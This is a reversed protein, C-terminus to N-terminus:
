TLGCRSMLLRGDIHAALGFKTYLGRAAVNAVGVEVQISKCERERCEDFLEGLLAQAVGRRRFAPQVFLDDVYGGLGGHEMTYRVTLVAHGIPMGNSHALWVRGLMPNSSLFRFSSEAWQLDLDYGSEAYFEQM